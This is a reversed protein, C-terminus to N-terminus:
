RLRDLSRVMTEDKRIARQAFNVLLLTVLPIYAPLLYNIADKPLQLTNTFMTTTVFVAGIMLINTLVAFACLRVQLPRKKYMFIAVGVLSMFLTASIQMIIFMYNLKTFGDLNQIALISIYCTVETGLRFNAFPFIFLFVFSFLALALFITQKRQIM